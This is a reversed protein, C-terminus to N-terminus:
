SRRTDAGTAVVRWADGRPSLRWAFTWVDASHSVSPTGISHGEADRSLKFSEGVFRVLVELHTTDVLGGLIEPPGIRSFVTEVSTKQAERSAIADSFTKYVEPSVLHRLTERDGSDFAAVITEYAALAESLFRDLTTAAERELMEAVYRRPATDTAPAMAKPHCTGDHQRRSDEARPLQQIYEVWSSVIWYVWVAWLVSVLASADTEPPMAVEM